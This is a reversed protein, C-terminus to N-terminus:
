PRPASSTGGGAGALALLADADHIAVGTAGPTRAVTSLVTAITAYDAGWLSSSPADEVPRSLNVGVWVPIGARAASDIATRAVREIAAARDQYAMVTISSAVGCVATLGDLGDTARFDGLWYPVDADVPLGARGVARLAELMGDVLRASSSNWGALAHPEVDLHLRDFWGSSVAEAAWRGALDPHLAWEPDGGLADLAIGRAGAAGHLQRLWEITGTDESFGPAVWVLLRAVQHDTAVAVLQEPAAEHWVWLANTRQATEGRLVSSGVGIAGALVLLGVSTSLVWRWRRRRVKESDSRFHNRSLATPPPRGM